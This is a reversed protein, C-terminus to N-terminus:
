HVAPGAGWTARAPVRPKPNPEPENVAPENVAPSIRPAEGADAEEAIPAAFPPAYRFGVPDPQLPPPTESSSGGCAALGGLTLTFAAGFLLRYRMM